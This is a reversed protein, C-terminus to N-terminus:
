CDCFFAPYQHSSSDESGRGLPCLIRKRDGGSEVKKAALDAMSDAKFSVGGARAIALYAM